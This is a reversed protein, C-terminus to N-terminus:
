SKELPLVMAINVYGLVVISNLFSIIIRYAGETALGLFYRARSHLPLSAEMPLVKGEPEKIEEQDEINLNVEEKLVGKVVDSLMLEQDSEQNTTYGRSHFLGEGNPKISETVLPDIEKEEDKEVEMVKKKLAAVKDIHAHYENLYMKDIQERVKGTTKIKMTGGVSVDLSMRTDLNLRLADRKLSWSCSFRPEPESVTRECTRELSCLTTDLPM